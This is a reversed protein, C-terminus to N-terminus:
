KIVKYVLQITQGESPSMEQFELKLDFSEPAFLPIGRGVIVPEINLVLEDILNLKAFSSNVRSGGTVLVTELGRESLKELAQRPSHVVEFYKSVQYNSDSTVVVMAIGELDKLYGKGWTKVVEYTKRGWIVGGANRASKLWAVWSDHSIFDESNNERAIYGNTSMAMWLIVKM